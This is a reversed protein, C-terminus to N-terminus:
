IVLPLRVSSSLVNTITYFGIAFFDLPTSICYYAVPLSVFYLHEVQRTITPFEGASEVIAQMSLMM